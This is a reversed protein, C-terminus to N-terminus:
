RFSPHIAVRAASSREGATPAPAQRDGDAVLVPGVPQQEDRAIELEELLRAQRGCEHLEDAPRRHNRRHLAPTDVQGTTPETANRSPSDCPTSQIIIPTLGSPARRRPARPGCPCHWGVGASRRPLPDAQEHAVVSLEAEHHGAVARCGDRDPSPARCAAQRGAARAPSGASRHRWSIPATSADSSEHFPRGSRRSRPRDRCRCWRRSSCRGAGTAGPWGRSPAASGAPTPSPLSM